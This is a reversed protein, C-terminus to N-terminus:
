GSPPAEFYGWRKHNKKRTRNQHWWANWWYCSWHLWKWQGTRISSISSSHNLFMQAWQWGSPSWKHSLQSAAASWGLMVNCSKCIHSCYKVSGRVAFHGLHLSFSQDAVVPQDKSSTQEDELGEGKEVVIKAAWSLPHISKAAVNNCPIEWCSQNSVASVFGLSPHCCYEPVDASLVKKKCISYKNSAPQHPCFVCLWKLSAEKTCKHNLQFSRPTLTNPVEISRARWLFQTNSSEALKHTPKKAAQCNVEVDRERGRAIYIYICLMYCIYIYWKIDILITTVSHTLSHTARATRTETDAQNSAQNAQRTPQNTNDNRNDNEVEQHGKNKEINNSYKKPPIAKPKIIQLKNESVAVELKKFKLPIEVRRNLWFFGTYEQPPAPRHPM